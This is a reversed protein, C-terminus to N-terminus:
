RSRRSACRGSGSVSYCRNSAFCFPIILCKSKATSEAIPFRSRSRGHSNKKSHKSHVGILGGIGM